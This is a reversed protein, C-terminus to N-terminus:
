RQPTPSSSTWTCTWGIPWRAPCRSGPLPPDRGGLLQVPKLKAGGGCPCPNAAAVLMVRCPLEISQRARSILIRGDELPQRLAELANRSFEPLEDLFLVGRHARTLEGPRPPVGGGVLGAASITHHPARFPRRRADRLADRDGCASAVGAVDIAEAEGLPPMISPLRRAAM